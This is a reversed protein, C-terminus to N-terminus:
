PPCGSNKRELWLVKKWDEGHLKIMKEAFEVRKARLEQGTRIIEDMEEQSIERAGRSAVAKAVMEGVEANEFVVMGMTNQEVIRFKGGSQDRWIGFMSLDDHLIAVVDAAIIQSSIPGIQEAETFVGLQLLESSLDYAQGPSDCLIEIPKGSALGRCVSLAGEESTQLVARLLRVLRAVYDRSWLARLVIRYM